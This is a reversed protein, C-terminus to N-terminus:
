TKVYFSAEDVMEIDDRGKLDQMLQFLAGDKQKAEIMCDMEAVSGNVEKLFRMFMDSDVLDAHSRFAQENKPSSIHMKLPHPSNRWSNVVRNWHSTWDPDEHNALHHHYDFVVPIGLKEGLYLCDQLNFSKDDNEIMLMRQVDDPVYSWNSIFQEIAKPKNKYTGGVHLVSRHTLDIGMGDVLQVHHLLNKVSGNFVSEKPSNLVVFHDPHFDLRMTHKRAFDGLARLDNRIAQMYNWGNLAEHTALPVLRSSLRFFKIDHANNHKLLRLCNHLNSRAIRELRSVAAEKDDLQQFRKYTMTQSPSCNKVNVSMAVYGLRFRTWNTM